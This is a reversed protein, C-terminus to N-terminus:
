KARALEEDIVRQFNEFPQAGGLFRGNIFFAPTGSVGSENGADIDAEVEEQFKRSDFCANFKASDLGLDGAHRKLDDDSLEDSSAFLRDHYPWFRDQENACLSAEAAPRANPHSPLPYHRYVLRIRDGYKALVQTIISTARLCFPCQFDSFEIIEIPAGAPGRAPRGADGVATRPPALAITVPTKAKLADVYRSRAVQRGEQALLSRIPERIRDLPTGEVRARNAEYWAEVEADTPAPVKAEIERTTLAAPDISLAKAEREILQTAVIEEIAARRAEYLAQALPLDGFNNATQRLAQKDVEALTVSASGITAVVDSPAQQSSPQAASSCAVGLVVLWVAILVKTIHMPATDVSERSM